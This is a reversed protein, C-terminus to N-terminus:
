SFIIKAMTISAFFVSRSPCSQPLCSRMFNRGTNRRLIQPAKFFSIICFTFCFCVVFNMLICFFFGVECRQKQAETVQKQLEQGQEELEWQLTVKEQTLVQVQEQLAQRDQRHEELECQMAWTKEELQTQFSLDRQEAEELRSQLQNRDQEAMNLQNELSLRSQDKHEIQSLLCEREKDVRELETLLRLVESRAQQHDKREVELADSERKLATQITVKDEREQQLQEMMEKKEEGVEKILKRAQEKENQLQVEGQNKQKELQGLVEEREKIQLQLQTILAVHRAEM